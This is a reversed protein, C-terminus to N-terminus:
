GGAGGLRAAIAKALAEVSKTSAAPGAITNVTVLVTQKGLLFRLQTAGAGTAEYAPLKGLTLKRPTGVLGQALNRRGLQLAGQDAYSSVTVQLHASRATKGAWNGVYITSGPGPLPKANTCRSTVGQIATVQRTTLLSCVKGNFNAASAATTCV